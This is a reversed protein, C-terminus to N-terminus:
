PQHAAPFWNFSDAGHWAAIDALTRLGGEPATPPQLIPKPMMVDPVAFMISPSLPHKQSELSTVHHNRLSPLHTSLGMWDPHKALIFIAITTSPHAQDAVVDIIACPFHHETELDLLIQWLVVMFNIENATDLPTLDVNAIHNPSIMSHATLFVDMDLNPDGSVPLEHINPDISIRDRVYQIARELRETPVTAPWGAFDEPGFDPEEIPCNQHEGAQRRAETEEQTAKIIKTRAALAQGRGLGSALCVLTKGMVQNHAVLWLDSAPDQPDCLQEVKWAVVNSTHRIQQCGDDFTIRFVSWGDTEGPLRADEVMKMTENIRDMDEQTLGVPLPKQDEDMDM